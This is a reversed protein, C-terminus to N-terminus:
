KKKFIRKSSLEAIYDCQISMFLAAFGIIDNIIANALLLVYFIGLIIIYISYLNTKRIFHQMKREKIKDGLYDANDLLLNFDTKTIDIILFRVYILSVVNVLAIINNIYESKDFIWRFISASIFVFLLILFNKNLPKTM